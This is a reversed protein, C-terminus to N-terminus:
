RKRSSRNKKGRNEKQRKREEDLNLMRRLVDTKKALEIEQELERVRERLGEKERDVRWLRPRGAEQDQIAKVMAELGKREWEYYTKRSVGLQRAGETATLQGSRVAMIVRVRERARAEKKGERSLGM